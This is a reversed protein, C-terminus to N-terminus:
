GLAFSTAVASSGPEAIEPYRAGPLIAVDFIEQVLDEFRLVGAVAGSRLDIAWVGCVREQLRQTLPLNGFTSAERIQSLGVFATHGSIALGRTFGPLEAVTETTGSALDVQVLEGRGSELLWLRGDHWRPSHPMSIGAAIIERSPIDILCGGSAKGARWGGPADTQGLATAYALRGEVLCVGNLHCRDGPAVESIFPPRWRPVFSSDANFTVLSSFATAVGWLEGTGDYALEHILIDGTTHRNRPVFCADHIGAPEVKAAVAPMDRFDWVETRTGLAFRGDAAALGMPKDFSRLHTNLMAGQVRACILRGSQYTSILLSCERESLLGPFGATFLSRFPSEGDKPRRGSSRALRPARLEDIRRSVDHTRTLVPVLAEPLLPPNLALRRATEEVPSLLAQDYPIELFECLRRLEGRPDDTLTEWDCVAWREPPLRELENLAREALVAWQEVVITELPRGSLERWGPILPLSWPPGPWGPLDPESVFAGSRWSRLMEETSATADRICFVFRSDPFAQILFPIRLASRLSWVVAREAVQGDVLARGERDVLASALAERVTREHGVADLATLEHSEWGRSGPQANPLVTAFVDDRGALHWGGAARALASDVVAGGSGPPGVLFVPKQIGDHM